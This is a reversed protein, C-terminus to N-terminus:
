RTRKIISEIKEILKLNYSTKSPIPINKVSYDYSIKVMSYLAFLYLARGIFSSWWVCVTVFRNDKHRWLFNAMSMYGFWLSINFLLDSSTEFHRCSFLNRNCVNLLLLPLFYKYERIDELWNFCVNGYELMLINKYFLVNM